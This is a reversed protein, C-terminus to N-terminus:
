MMSSIAKIQTDVDFFYSTSAIIACINQIYNLGKKQSNIKLLHRRLGDQCIKIVDNDYVIGNNLRKSTSYLVTKNHYNSVLGNVMNNDANLVLIGDETQNIFMNRLGHIYEEYTMFSDNLEPLVNTIISINPSSNLSLLQKNNLELILITNSNMENIRPLLPRSPNNDLYCEYKFKNLVDCLLSIISTDKNGTIGIVKGPCLEILLDQVSTVVSGSDELEKFEKLDYRYEPSKIVLDIDKLKNLCCKGLSYSMNYNIIREVINLHLKDLTRNDFIAIKANHRHLYDIIPISSNDLGVIAIKRGYLFNNFDELNRNIYNLSM